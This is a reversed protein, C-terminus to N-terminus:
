EVIISYEDRWNIRLTHTGSELTEPITLELQCQRPCTTNLVEVNDIYIHVPRIGTMTPHFINYVDGCTRAYAILIYADTFNLVITEGAQVTESLPTDWQLYAWIEGTPQPIPESCDGSEAESSDNLGPLFSMVFALIVLIIAFLSFWIIPRKM